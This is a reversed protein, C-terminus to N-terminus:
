DQDPIDLQNSTTGWCFHGCIAFAVHFRDLVWVVLELTEGCNLVKANNVDAMLQWACVARSDDSM